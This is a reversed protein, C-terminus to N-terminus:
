PSGSMGPAAAKGARAVPRNPRQILYFVFVPTTDTVIVDFTATEGPRLVGDDFSIYDLPETVESARAFHDSTFPRGSTAGQGFSLGDFTDSPEGLIQQLEFDVFNWVFRTRNTVIKRLAFGAPHYTGVRNGFEPTFGRIVLVASAPGTIEEVVVFPDDFTGHGSATIVRFGGREDSFTIGEVTVSRATAASSALVAVFAIAIFPRQRRM